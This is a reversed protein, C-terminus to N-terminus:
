PKEFGLVRAKLHSTRPDQDFTVWGQRTSRRPVFAIELQGRAKEESGSEMVVEVHVGAATEDGHNIVTVPVLFHSGYGEPTGLRVELVPPQEGSTAGAYGLYGLTFAIMVLGIAFVMWELWNKNTRNM